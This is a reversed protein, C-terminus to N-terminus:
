KEFVLTEANAGLQRLAALINQLRTQGACM